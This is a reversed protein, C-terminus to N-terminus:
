SQAQKALELNRCAMIINWKNGEKALAEVLAYGMGKNSGTVIITKQNNGM